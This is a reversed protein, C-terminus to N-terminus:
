IHVPKMWIVSDKEFKCFGVIIVNGSLMIIFINHQQSSNMGKVIKGRTKDQMQTTTEKPTAPMSEQDERTRNTIRTASQM